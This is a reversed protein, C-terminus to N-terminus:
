RCTCTAHLDGFVCHLCSMHVTPKYTQQSENPSKHMSELMYDIYERAKRVDEIGNKLEYRTIYKLINGACYAQFGEPGLKAEIIKITEIGGKQYHSPKKVSDSM